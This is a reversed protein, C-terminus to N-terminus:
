GEWYRQFAHETGIKKSRTARRRSHRLSESAEATGLNAHESSAARTEQPADFVCEDFSIRGGLRRFGGAVHQRHHVKRHQVKSRDARRKAFNSARVLRFIHKNGVCLDLM